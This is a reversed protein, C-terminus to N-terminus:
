VMKKKNINILSDNHLQNAEKYNITLKFTGNEILNFFFFDGFDSYHSEREYLQTVHDRLLRNLNLM